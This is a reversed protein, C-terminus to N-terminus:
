QLMLIYNELVKSNESRLSFLDSLIVNVMNILGGGATGQLARGVILINMSQATACIISSFFFWAVIVLLVPKRGWIDSIKTWIPAAVANALLYAGGIWVFGSSSKLEHSITPISTTMITQDLAAV